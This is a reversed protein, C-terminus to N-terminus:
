FCDKALKDSINTTFRSTEGFLGMQIQGDSYGLTHLLEHMVAGGTDSTSLGLTDGSRWYIKNEGLVPVMAHVYGTVPDSYNAFFWNVPAMVPSLAPGPVSV